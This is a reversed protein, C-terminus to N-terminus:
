FIKIANETHCSVRTVAIAFTILAPSQTEALSNDARRYQYQAPVEGQAVVANIIVLQAAREMDTLLLLGKNAVM